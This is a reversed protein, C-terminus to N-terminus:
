KNKKFLRSGHKTHKTSYPSREGAHSTIHLPGCHAKLEKMFVTRRKQEKKSGVGKVSPIRVMAILPNAVNGESYLSGIQISLTNHGGDYKGGSLYFGDEQLEKNIQDLGLGYEAMKGYIVKSIEDMIEEKKDESLRRTLAPM